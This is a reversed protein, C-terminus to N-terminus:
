KGRRSSSSTGAATGKAPVLAVAFRTAENAKRVNEPLLAWAPSLPLLAKVDIKVYIPSRKQAFLWPILDPEAYAWRWCSHGRLKPSNMTTRRVVGGLKKIRELLEDCDEKLGASESRNYFAWVAVQQHHVFDDLLWDFGGPTTVAGAFVGPWMAIMQLAGHGGSSLGLVYVRDPDIAPYKTKMQEVLDVVAAMQPPPEGLAGRGIWGEGSGTVQPVLLFCPYKKQNVPQVFTLFEEHKFLYRGSDGLGHLFIVLPVRMRPPLEKPEFWRYPMAYTSTYHVDEALDTGHVTFAKTFSDPDFSDSLKSPVRTVTRPADPEDHVSRRTAGAAALGCVCMAGAAALGLRRRGVWTFNSM